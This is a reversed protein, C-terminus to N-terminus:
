ELLISHSITSFYKTFDLYVFDVAKVEDLLCTVKDNFPSWILQTPGAKWLGLSVPSSYTTTRYRGLSPVWSSRSWVNEPALTLSILKYNGPEEKWCKQLHFDCKSAALWRPSGGIALVVSLHYFAAQHANGVAGVNSRCPNWRAENFKTCPWSPLGEEWPNLTTKLGFYHGKM